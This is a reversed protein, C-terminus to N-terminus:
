EIWRINVSFVHATTMGAWKVNLLSGYIWLYCCDSSSSFYPIPTAGKTLTTTEKYEHLMAGFWYRKAKGTISSVNATLQGSSDNSQLVVCQEYVTGEATRGIEHKEADFARSM